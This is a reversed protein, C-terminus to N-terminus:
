FLLKRIGVRITRGLPDLYDPQYSVPTNGAADRVRQRSDFLNDVSVVFRTGILWKHKAILDLRTTPDFFLRLNATALGSFNLTQPNAATGGVVRTGTEYNVSLRAGLGNNSYGFQGEFEHRSQGGSGIAGGNLLDIVPVGPAIEM